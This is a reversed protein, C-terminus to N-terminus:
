WGGKSGICTKNFLKCHVYISSQRSSFPELSDSTRSVATSTRRLGIDGRHSFHSGGRQFSKKKTTSTQPKAEVQLKISLTKESFILLSVKFTLTKMLWIKSILIKRHRLKSVQASLNGLLRVADAGAKLTDESDLTFGTTNPKYDPLNQTRLSSRKSSRPLRSFPTLNPVTPLRCRQRRIRAPVRRREGNTLTSSFASEVMTTNSESLM